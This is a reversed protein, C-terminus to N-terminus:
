ETPLWEVAGTDLDYRAGLITVKGAHALERLIASNAHLAAMQAKVNARVALDLDTITAIGPRIFGLLTDLNPGLSDTGLAAKVAGCGEHGLVVVVHSDLHEAAYEVSGITSPDAVNGAVRITFLEGTGTEFLLEPPVRSDACGLLTCWPHQGKALEARQGPSLDAKPAQGKVFRANGAELKEIVEAKGPAAAIQGPHPESHPAALLLSSLFFPVIRRGLARTHIWACAEGQLWM